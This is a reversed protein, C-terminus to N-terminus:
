GRNCRLRNKRNIKNFEKVISEDELGARILKLEQKVIVILAYGFVCVLMVFVVLCLIFAYIEFKTM